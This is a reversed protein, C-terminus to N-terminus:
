NLGVATSIATAYFIYRGIFEGLMVFGTALFVANRSAGTLVREEGYVSYLLIANGSLVLVWKLGIAMAYIGGMLAITAHAAADGDALGAFYAPLCSLQFILYALAAINAVRFVKLVEEGDDAEQKGLVNALAAGTVGFLLTTGFFSIYTNITAWAPKVSAVYISAMSYIVALGLVAAILDLLRNVKGKRHLVFVAFWAVIFVSTFFGERSLWSTALNNMVNHVGAPSGLHLTALVSSLAAVPGSALIGLRTVKLATEQKTCLRIIVSVVFTGVAWQSLLTFLLLPLEETNM